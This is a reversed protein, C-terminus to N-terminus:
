GLTIFCALKNSGNKLQLSFSINHIPDRADYEFGKM